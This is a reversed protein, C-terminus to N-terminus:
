INIKKLNKGINPDYARNPGLVYRRDIWVTAFHVIINSWKWYGPVVNLWLGM